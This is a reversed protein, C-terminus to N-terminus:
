ADFSDSRRFIMNLVEFSTNRKFIRQLEKQIQHKRELGIDRMCIQCHIQSSNSFNDPLFPYADQTLFRKTRIFDANFHASCILFKSKETKLINQWKRLETKDEPAPFLDSGVSKCGSIICKAMTIILFDIKYFRQRAHLM